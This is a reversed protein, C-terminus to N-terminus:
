EFLLLGKVQMEFQHVLDSKWKNCLGISFDVFHFFAMLSLWTFWHPFGQEGDYFSTCLTVSCSIMHTLCYCKCSEKFYRIFDSKAGFRHELEKPFIEVEDYDFFQSHDLLVAWHIAIFQSILTSRFLAMSLLEPVESYISTAAQKSFYLKTCYNWCM